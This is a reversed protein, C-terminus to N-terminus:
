STQQIPFPIEPKKKTHTHKSQIQDFRISTHKSEEM